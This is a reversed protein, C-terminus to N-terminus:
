RQQQDQRPLEDAHRLIVKWEGNERRYVQTCRLTRPVPQDGTHRTIHELDVTEWGREHGGFAGMIVVDDAHSWLAKFPEPRGEALDGLADQCRSIFRDWDSEV